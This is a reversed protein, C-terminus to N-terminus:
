RLVGGWEVLTFGKREPTRINYGQVNIPQELPMYDMLVRIVTDPKPFVDLPALADMIDNGMFTVFYYPASLMKPEWFEEFDKREKNTLGFLSLKEELLKHVQSQEVVFGKKPTEYIGGRGEWFLYPYVKGDALNTINSQSDSTVDWGGNYAPDSVLMGGHPSVKVSIKQETEPYLYIVPKACEAVPIFKKNQFRIFRGLSDKWFFIPRGAVFQAYTPKTEGEPLYLSEYMAKLEEKNQDKYGYVPQGDFATGIQTLINPNIDVVDRLNGFGCGGIRQYVYEETNAKGDKWTILPVNKEDIIPIILQYTYTMGDGSKIYFGNFSNPNTDKPSDVYVDGVTPDTFLIALDDACFFEQGNRFFGMNKVYTFEAKPDSSSIKEPFNLDPLDFEVDKILATIFKAGWSPDPLPDSYKELYYYTGDKRIIRYQDGLGLGQPIVKSIIFEGGQYKGSKVTGVLYNMDSYGGREDYPAFLHVDNLLKPETWQLIGSRSVVQPLRNKCESDGYDDYTPLNQPTSTPLGDTPSDVVNVGGNNNSNPPLNNGNKASYQWYAFAAGALLIVALLIGIILDRKKRSKREKLLDDTLNDNIRNEVPKQEDM